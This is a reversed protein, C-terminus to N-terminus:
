PCGGLMMKVQALERWAGSNGPEAKVRAEIAPYLGLYPIVKCVGMLLMGLQTLCCLRAM